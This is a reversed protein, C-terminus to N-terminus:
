KRGRRRAPVVPKVDQAADKVRHVFEPWGSYGLGAVRGTIAYAADLYDGGPHATLWEMAESVHRDTVEFHENVREGGM